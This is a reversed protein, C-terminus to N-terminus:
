HPLPTGDARLFMRATSAVKGYETSVMLRHGETEKDICDCVMDGATTGSATHIECYRLPREPTKKCEPLALSVAGADLYIRHVGGRECASLWLAACIIISLKKM